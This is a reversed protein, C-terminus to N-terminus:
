KPWHQVSLPPKPISQSGQENHVAQQQALGVLVLDGPCGFSLLQGCKKAAPSPEFQTDLQAPPMVRDCPAMTCAPITTPHLTPKLLDRHDPHQKPLCLLPRLQLCSRLLVIDIHRYIANQNTPGWYRATTCTTHPYIQSTSSSGHWSSSLVSEQLKQYAFMSQLQYVHTKHLLCFLQQWKTV